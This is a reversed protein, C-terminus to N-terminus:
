VLFSFGWPLSGTCWNITTLDFLVMHIEIYTNFLYLSYWMWNILYWCVHWIQPLITSLGQKSYWIWWWSSVHLHNWNVLHPLTISQQFTHYTHLIYILNNCMSQLIQLDSIVWMYPEIDTLNIGSVILKVWTYPSTSLSYQRVAM